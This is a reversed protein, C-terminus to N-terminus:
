FGHRVVSLVSPQSHVQLNCDFCSFTTLKPLVASLNAPLYGGSISGDLYVYMLTSVVDPWREFAEIVAELPAARAYADTVVCLKCPLSRQFAPPTGSLGGDNLYLSM